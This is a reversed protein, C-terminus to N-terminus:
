VGSVAVAAAHPTRISPFFDPSSRLARRRRSIPAPQTRFTGDTLYRLAPPIQRSLRPTWISPSRRSATSRPTGLAIRFSYAAKPLRSGSYSRFFVFSLVGATSSNGKNRPVPESTQARLPKAALIHARSIIFGEEPLSTTSTKQSGDATRLLGRGGINTARFLRVNSYQASQLPAARRM